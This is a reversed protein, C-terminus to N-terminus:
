SILRITLFGAIRAGVADYQCFVGDSRRKLPLSERAPATTIIFTDESPLSLRPISEIKEAWRAVAPHARCLAAPSGGRALIIDVSEDEPIDRLAPSIEDQPIGLVEATYRLADAGGIPVFEAAPCVCNAGFEERLRRLATARDPRSVVLLAPDDPGAPTVSASTGLTELCRSKLRTLDGPSVPGAPMGARCKEAVELTNDLFVDDFGLTRMEAESKLWIDRTGISFDSVSGFRTKIIIDHAVWDEPRPYHVDNTVVPKLGLERSIEVIHENAIEQEEFGIRSMEPYFDDGFIDLYRALERKGAALGGRIITLPFSGYFCASLCILGEHYKELLRWDILGRTGRFCHNLWAESMMRVLNIYGRNDKALLVLHNRHADDLEIKVPADEVFYCECGLIPSMGRETCARWFQPTFAVEGHDTIAMATQGLGRARDLGAGIALASDSYSGLFHNHLHVFPM